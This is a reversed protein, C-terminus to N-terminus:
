CGHRLHAGWAEGNDKEPGNGRLLVRLDRMDRCNALERSTLGGLQRAVYISMSLSTGRNTASHESLIDLVTQDRDNLWNLDAGQHKVLWRGLNTRCSLFAAALPTIGHADPVNFGRDTQYFQICGQPDNESNGAVVVSPTTGENNRRWLFGGTLCKITKDAKGDQTEGERDNPAPSSSSPLGTENDSDDTGEAEVRIGQSSIYLHLLRKAYNPHVCSAPIHLASTGNRDRHNPDAGHKLLRKATKVVIRPHRHAMASHLPSRGQNDLANPNAGRKLLLSVVEKSSFQAAEHLPSRGTASALDLKAGSNLLAEVCEMICRYEDKSDSYSRKSPVLACCYSLVTQGHFNRADIDGVKSIFTKFFLLPDDICHSLLPLTNQIPLNGDEDWLNINIRKTTLCELM